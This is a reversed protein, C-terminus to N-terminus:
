GEFGHLALFDTRYGAIDTTAEVNEPALTEMLKDVAAQIEPRMEWDDIRIRGAEDVPMEGGDARYMFERFLRDIQDLCDEHLGAEKMVKFLCSIYPPMAPIVASARTVLAKNVSVVGVGNLDKLTETIAKASAELNEKAKGLTGSRYIDQTCKPGIYSYAVTKCGEALLGQAKLYDIWLIWDEGGMVKVTAAIEEDSAPEVSVEKMECTMIDLTRAVHPKGIPKIASKYLVGDKPDTRMPSALSYVVLDFPKFGNDKALQAVTERTADAFADASITIAKLGEAKATEDFAENNYWGPSGAKRDTPAREFSVGLTEAKPGGFAVAIRSALGYGGSCGLVLVSKPGNEIPT